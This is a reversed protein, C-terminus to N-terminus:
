ERVARVSQRDPRPEAYLERYRARAGLVRAVYARTEEFSVKTIFEAPDRSYCHTRWLAVQRDGANYAAVAEPISGGFRELLEALHAAALEISLVPDGLDEPSIRGLGIRIALPRATPFVFQAMGRASAPSVADPDFRSEERLLALLLAAEVGRTLAIREIDETYPVPHLRVRLHRPWLPEPLHDGIRDALMEAVYISRRVSGARFLGESATLALAPHSVPFHEAVAAGGASWLGLALLTEEPTSLEAEWIPWQPPPVPTPGALERVVRQGGAREFLRARAAAGSPHAPGLHRLAAALDRVRHSGALGIAAQEAGAALDPAKLREAAVVALPHYPDLGLTALYHGIAAAAEGSADALRARWFVVEVSDRGLALEAQRLWRAARDGRRRVLDSSALYLAARAADERWDARTPLLDVIELAATERGTRWEVRMAAVLGPAAWRGISDALYAKRYSASAAMWEGRLEFTRGQQFLARALDEPRRVREALNGFGGAARVLDDTWFWSRALLYLTEIDARHELDRPLAAVATELLEAADDFERHHHLSAGVVAAADADLALGPIRLLSRAAASAALDTGDERLLEVLQAVRDVAGAGACDLRVQLIRRRTSAPLRDLALDELVRCDGGREVSQLLLREAPEVLDAPPDGQLLSAVLGSSLEPHGLHIQIEAARLLAYPRLAPSTRMVRAYATVAERPHGLRERLHGLLYEVGLARAEEPAEELLREALKAAESPKETQQLAVLDIRPDVGFALVALLAALTV